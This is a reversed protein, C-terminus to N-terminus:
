ARSERIISHFKIATTEKSIATVLHLARWLIRAHERGCTTWTGHGWRKTNEEVKMPSEISFCSDYANRDTSPVVLNLVTIADPTEKPWAYVWMQSDPDQDKDWMFRFTWKERRLDSHIYVDVERSLITGQM